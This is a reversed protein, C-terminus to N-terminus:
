ALLETRKACRAPSASVGAALGSTLGALFFTIQQAEPGFRLDVFLAPGLYIALVGLMMLGQARVWDPTATNRWLRWSQIAWGGLMAVFLGFGILGTENLMALFTNHNPQNRIDELYLSTTRDSLYPRAAQQFQGYGVGLLPADLFMKWSVYAYSFRSKASLESIAAGEAREIRVLNEGQFAALFVAVMLAFSVFVARRRHSMPLGLVVLGCLGTSIWICRTYTVFIAALFLPILLVLILTGLRGLQRRLMWLCLLCVNLYLGLPQSHVMPGRARGFHLGVKPDAIYSPYVLWWQKTIEALATVALYVGILALVVYTTVLARQDIPSQRAIWYVAMPMLFGAVLEWVPSVKGPVDLKWDHSFTSFILVIALLLMVVDRWAVPKPDARGLRRQVVYVVGLAGLFARDLTVPISGLDFRFFERGFCLAVVLFVLCGHILSGRLAYVGGWVLVLVGAIVEM